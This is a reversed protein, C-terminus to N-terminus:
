EHTKSVISIRRPKQGLSISGGSVVEWEHGVNFEEPSAKVHKHICATM